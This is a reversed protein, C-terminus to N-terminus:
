IRWKTKSAEQMCTPLEPLECWYLVQNKLITFRFQSTLSEVLAVLPAQPTLQCLIAIPRGLPPLIKHGNRFKNLM